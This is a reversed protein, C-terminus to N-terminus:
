GRVAPDRLLRLVLWAPAALVILIVLGTWALPADSRPHVLGLPYCLGIALTFLWGVLSATCSGILWGRWWRPRKVLAIGTVVSLLIGVLLAVGLGVIFASLGWGSLPGIVQGFAIPAGAGVLVQGAFGLRLTLSVGERTAAQTM